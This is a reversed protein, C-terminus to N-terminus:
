EKRGLKPPEWSHSQYVNEQDKKWDYAQFFDDTILM